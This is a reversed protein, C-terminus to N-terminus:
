ADGTVLNVPKGNLFAEIKDVSIRLQNVRADLTNGASHATIVPNDLSSFPSDSALPEDPEFVDFGAGAIHRERLTDLLVAMDVLAARSTNVLYAEAADTRPARKFYYGANGRECSSAAFCFGGGHM